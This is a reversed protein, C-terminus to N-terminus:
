EHSRPNERLKSITNKIEDVSWAIEDLEEKTIDSDWKDLAIKSIQCAHFLLNWYPHHEATAYSLESVEELGSKARDLSNTNEGIIKVINAVVGPVLKVMVGRKSYSAALEELSRYFEDFSASM